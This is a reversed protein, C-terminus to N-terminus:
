EKVPQKPESAKANKVNSKAYINSPLVQIPKIEVTTKNIFPLDLHEPLLERVNDITYNSSALLWVSLLLLAFTLAATTGNFSRRGPKATVETAAKKMTKLNVHDRNEAYAGLLARDCLVNIVRPIGKSVKIIYNIAKKSFIINKTGGGAVSLRHQIYSSVDAPQLPTLHYRTTIRQNIQSLLPNSLITLLEPQGILVIQLLKHTNTELNTLLRLQELTEIDLNQAEDIILSTNRGKAHADLLYENLKDTYTKISPSEDSIVIKLEECVTKLLDTITMKPNLVLAIDTHEPLQEILCRCVTTKGAGVDGTLLIICGEGSIGYLLHALAERHLESMYLYRPNPAIVFPKERLGFYQTYM